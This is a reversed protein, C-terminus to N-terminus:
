PREGQALALASRALRVGLAVALAKEDASLGHNRGDPRAHHSAGYPTGGGETSALASETYPIGVLLMGHHLLPLMMSLLTSEQGGHLSGTSTFVCGPKGALAGALWQPTTGDLFYKLPAAMNGFRTPSGLALGACEELDRLEAYPPGDDPIDPATAECVTSVPPVTRVRSEAGPVSDIGQAIARALERTAGHRSYYLVLIPKM